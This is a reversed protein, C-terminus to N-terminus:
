VFNYFYWMHKDKVSRYNLEILWIETLHLIREGLNCYGFIHYDEPTLLQEEHNM